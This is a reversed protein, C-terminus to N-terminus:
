EMRDRMYAFFVDFTIKKGNPSIENLMNQKVQQTTSSKLQQIEVSLKKVEDYYKKRWIEMETEFEKRRENELNTANVIKAHKSVELANIRKIHLKLALQSIDDNRDVVFNSNSDLEDFLTLIKQWKEENCDKPRKPISSGSGMTYNCPSISPNYELMRWRLDM